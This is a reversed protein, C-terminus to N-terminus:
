VEEQMTCVVLVDWKILISAIMALGPRFYQSCFTMNQMTCGNCMSFYGSVTWPFDGKKTEGSAYCVILPM